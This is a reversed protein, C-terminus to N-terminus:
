KCSVLLASAHSVKFKLRLGNYASGPTFLVTPLNMVLSEVTFGRVTEWGSLLFSSKNVRPVTVALTGQQAQNPYPRLKTEPVPRDSSALGYPDISM